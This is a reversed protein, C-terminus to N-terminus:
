FDEDDSEDDSLDEDMDDNSESDTSHEFDTNSTHNATPMAQGRVIELIEELNHSAATGKTRNAKYQNFTRNEDFYTGTKIFSQRISEKMKESANYEKMLEIVDLVAEVVTQKPPVWDFQKNPNASHTTYHQRKVQQFETATRTGRLTRLHAKIPGNVVLDLVQLKSTMHPPLFAPTVNSEELVKDLGSAKHVPCNDMWLFLKKGKKESLPKMVLDYFMAQRPTDSWARHQTTILHNTEAHYLYNIRVETKKPATTMAQAEPVVTSSSTSSSSSPLTMAEQAEIAKM